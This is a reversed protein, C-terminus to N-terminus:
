VKRLRKGSPNVNKHPTRRPKRRKIAIVDAKTLYGDLVMEELLPTRDKKARNHWALERSSEREIGFPLKKKSPKEKLLHLVTNAQEPDLYEEGCYPCHWGDLIYGEFRVRSGFAIHGCDVCDLGNIRGLHTRLGPAHPHSANKGKDKTGKYFKRASGYVDEDVWDDKCKPCHEVPAKFGPFIEKRLRKM